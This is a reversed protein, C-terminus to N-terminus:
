EEEEKRQRLVVNCYVICPIKCQCNRLEYDLKFKM